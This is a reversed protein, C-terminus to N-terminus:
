HLLNQVVGVLEGSSELVVLRTLAVLTIRDGKCLQPLRHLGPGVGFAGDTVRDVMGPGPPVRPGEDAPDDARGTLGGPLTVAVFLVRLDGDSLGLCAILPPTVHGRRALVKQAAKETRFGRRRLQKRVIEGVPAVDVVVTYTGRARDKRVSGRRGATDAM